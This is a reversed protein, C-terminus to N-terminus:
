IRKLAPKIVIKMEHKRFIMRHKGLAM